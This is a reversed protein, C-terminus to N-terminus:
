LKNNKFFNEIMTDIPKDITGGQKLWGKAKLKRLTEAIKKVDDKNSSNIQNIQKAIRGRITSIKGENLDKIESKSVKFKIKQGGISM